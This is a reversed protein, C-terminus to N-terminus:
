GAGGGGASTSLTDRRVRMTDPPTTDPPPTVPPPAAPRPAAGGAPPSAPAAPPPAHALQSRLQIARQLHAEYTPRADRLMGRLEDNRASGLLRSDLADVFAQYFEIEGQLFAQDFADGSLGGVRGGARDAVVRLERSLESEAPAIGGRQGLDAFAQRLSAQDARVVEAFREVDVHQAAVRGREATAAGADAASLVVHLVEGDTLADAAGTRLTDALLADDADNGRGCAAAVLAGGLAGILFLTRTAAM